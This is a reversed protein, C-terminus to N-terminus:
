GTASGDRQVGGRDAVRQVDGRFDQGPHELPLVVPVSLFAIPQWTKLKERDLRVRRCPQLPHEVIGGLAGLCADVPHHGVGFATATAVGLDGGMKALPEVGAAIGAVDADLLAAFPRFRVGRCSRGGPLRVTAVEASAIATKFATALAGNGTPLVPSIRRSSPEIWLRM